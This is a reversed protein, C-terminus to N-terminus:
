QALAERMSNMRNDLESMADLRSAIASSDCRCLSREAQMQTRALNLQEAAADLYTKAQTRDFHIKAVAFVMRYLHEMTELHASVVARSPDAGVNTRRALNGLEYAAYSIMETWDGLALAPDDLSCSNADAAETGSNCTESKMSELVRSSFDISANELIADSSDLNQSTSGHLLANRYAGDLVHVLQPIGSDSSMSSEGLPQGLLLAACSTLIVLGLAISTVTSIHPLSKM